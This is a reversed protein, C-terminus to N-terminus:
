VTIGFLKIVAVVVGGGGAGFAAYKLLEIGITQWLTLERKVQADRLKEQEEFRRIVEAKFNLLETKYERQETQITNFLQASTADNKTKERLRLEHDDLVKRVDSSLTSLAKEMATLKTDLLQYQLNLLKETMTDENSGDSM